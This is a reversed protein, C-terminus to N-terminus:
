PQGRASVTPQQDASYVRIGDIYVALVRSDLRLPDGSFVVLDADMGARIAGVRDSVGAAKAANITMAQRAKAPDMGYRVALSATQRLSHGGEIPMRGAFAVEVGAEELVGAMALTRPAMAFSYPGVIISAKSGALEEALDHVDSNHVISAKSSPDGFLRLAASVDMAQDCYLLGDLKGSVFSRLRAHQSGSKAGALVSRFMAMAGIRSTPERDFRWTAPGFGFVLPGDQRLVAGARASATGGTKVVVCSGAVLNTPAPALLATTIGSEVALRFDRHDPDFSDIASAGPDISFASEVANGYAGASSQVDILGPCVVADPFYAAGGSEQHKAGPVAAQIRGDALVITLEQSITGDITVHRGAVIAQPRLQSTQAVAPLV